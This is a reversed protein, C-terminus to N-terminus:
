VAPPLPPGGRGPGGGILLGLVPWLPQCYILVPLTSKGFYDDKNGTINIRIGDKTRRGTVHVRTDQWSDAFEVFCCNIEDSHKKRETSSRRGSGGGAHDRFAVKLERLSLSIAGECWHSPVEWGLSCCRSRWCIELDRSTALLLQGRSGRTGFRRMTPILFSNRGCDAAM